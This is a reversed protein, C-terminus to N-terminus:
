PKRDNWRLLGGALAIGCVCGWAAAPWFPGDALSALATGCVMGIGAGAALALSVRSERGPSRRSAAEAAPEIAPGTARESPRVPDPGAGPGEALAYPTEPSAALRAGAREPASAAPPLEDAVIWYTMAQRPEGAEARLATRALSPELSPDDMGIALDHAPRAVPQPARRTPAVAPVERREANPVAQADHTGGDVRYTRGGLLPFTFSCRSCRASRTSPREEAAHRYPTGCSPCIVIM